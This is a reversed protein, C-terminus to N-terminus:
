KHSYPAISGFEGLRAAALLGATLVTRQLSVAPWCLKLRHHQMTKGTQHQVHSVAGGKSQKALRAIANRQTLQM